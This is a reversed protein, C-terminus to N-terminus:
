QNQYIVNTLSDQERYIADDLDVISNRKNNGGRM